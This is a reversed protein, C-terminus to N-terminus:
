MNQLPYSDYLGEYHLKRWDPTVQERKLNFYDERCGTEKFRYAM